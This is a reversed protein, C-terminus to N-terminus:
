LEFPKGLPTEEAFLKELKRTSPLPESLMSVFEEYQEEGAVFWRRDTLVREAEVVASGIIFDTLSTDQAEAAQRLLAEQRETARLNIRQGKAPVNTRATRNTMDEELTYTCRVCVLMRQGLSGGRSNRGASALRKM